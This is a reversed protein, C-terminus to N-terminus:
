AGPARGFGPSRHHGIRAECGVSGRPRRLVRVCLRTDTGCSWPPSERRGRRAGEMRGDTTRVWRRRTVNRNYVNAIQAPVMTPAEGLGSRIAQNEVLAHRRVTADMRHRRQPRGRSSLRDRTQRLPHRTRAMAEPPLLITRHCQPRPLRRPRLLGTQRRPFRTTEPARGPRLTGPHGRPNRASAFTPESREPHTPRTAASRTPGPEHAVPRV